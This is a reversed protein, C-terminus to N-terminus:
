DAGRERTGFPDVPPAKERPGPKWSVRSYARVGEPAVPTHELTEVDYVMLTGKEDNRPSDHHIYAIYRGDPSFAPWTNPGTTNTIPQAGSGDASVVFIQLSGNNRAVYVIQSGDPSWNPGTWGYLTQGLVDRLNSGDADMVYLRWSGGRDSGFAIKKGDPSWAPDSDFGPNNTLNVPNSGDATMVFLEHNGTRQSTFLMKKGDPSWTPEHEGSATNTVNTEEGRDFDYVYLQLQGSKNSRYAIKRLDPSWCPNEAASRIPLVLEANEGHIDITVLEFTSGFRNASVALLPVSEAEEDGLVVVPWTATAMVFALVLALSRRM